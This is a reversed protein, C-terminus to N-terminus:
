WPITKGGQEVFTDSPGNFNLIAHTYASAGEEPTKYGTNGNFNTATYGPNVSIIRLDPLKKAYVTTFMNLASKTSPYFAFPIKYHRWDPNNQNGFSGLDSSINIIAPKVSHTGTTLLPLLADTLAVTGFINTNYVNQLQKRIASAGKAEEMGGSIAANNVLIDLQKVQKTIQDISDDNTIDLEVLEVSNSAKKDSQENLKQLAEQGKKPDRAAIYIHLNDGQRLLQQASVFGLGQNAGTILIHVKQTSSM